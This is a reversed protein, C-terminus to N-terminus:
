GIVLPNHMPCLERSYSSTSGVRLKIITGCSWRSCVIISELFGELKRTSCFKYTVSNRGPLMLVVSASVRSKLIKGDELAAKGEKNYKTLTLSNLAVLVSLGAVEGSGISLRVM